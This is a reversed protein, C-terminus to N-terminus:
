KPDLPNIGLVKYLAMIVPIAKKANSRALSEEAIRDGYIVIIHHKEQDSSAQALATNRWEEIAMCRESHIYDILEQVAQQLEEETM